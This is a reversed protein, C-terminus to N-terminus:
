GVVNAEAEKDFKAVKITVLQRIFSSALSRRYAVQEDLDSVARNEANLRSGIAETGLDQILMHLRRLDGIKEFADNGHCAEDVFDVFRQIIEFAAEIEDITNM